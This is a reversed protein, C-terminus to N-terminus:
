ETQLSFSDLYSLLAVRFMAAMPALNSYLLAVEKLANALDGHSKSSFMSKFVLGTMILDSNTLIM